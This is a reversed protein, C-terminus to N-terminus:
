RKNPSHGGYIAKDRGSQRLPTNSYLKLSQRPLSYTLTSDLRFTLLTSKPWTKCRKPQIAIFAPWSNAHLKRRHKCKASSRTIKLLCGVFSNSSSIKVKPGLFSRTTDLIAYLSPLNVDASAGNIVVCNGSCAKLRLITRLCAQFISAIFYTTALCIGVNEYDVIFHGPFWRVTHMPNSIAFCNKWKKNSKIVPPHQCM